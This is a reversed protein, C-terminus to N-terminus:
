VCVVFCFLVCLVVCLVCCVCVCCVFRNDIFPWDFFDGNYTVFVLPKMEKVHNLWTTLLELENAM